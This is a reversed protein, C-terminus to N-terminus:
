FSYNLPMSIFIIGFLIIFFKDKGFKSIIKSIKLIIKYKKEKQLKEQFPISINFLYKSYYKESWIAFIIYTLALIIKVNNFFMYNKRSKKLFYNHKLNKNNIAFDKDKNNDVSIRIVSFNPEDDKM